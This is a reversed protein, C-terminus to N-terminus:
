LQSESEPETATAPEPEPEPETETEPEPETEPEDGVEVGPEAELATKSADLVSNVLGLLQRAQNEIREGTVALEPDQGEAKLADDRLASGTNMISVLPTRLEVGFNTLIEKHRRGEEAEGEVRETRLRLRRVLFVILVYLGALTLILVGRFTALGSLWLERNQHIALM